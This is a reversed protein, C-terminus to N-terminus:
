SSETLVGAGSDIGSAGSAASVATSCGLLMESAALLEGALALSAAGALGIVGRGVVVAELDVELVTELDAADLVSGVFRGPLLGTADVLAVPPVVGILFGAETLVPALPVPKTLGLGFDGVFGTLRGDDSIAGVAAEAWLPPALRCDFRGWDALACAIPAEAADFGTFLLFETTFRWRGLRPTGGM